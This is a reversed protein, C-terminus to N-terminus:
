RHRWKVGNGAKKKCVVCCMIPCNLGVCVCIDATHRRYYTHTHTSNDIGLTRSCNSNLTQESEPAHIFLQKTVVRVISVRFFLWAFLRACGLNTLMQLMLLLLLFYVPAFFVFYSALVVVFHYVFLGFLLAEHGMSNRHKLRYNIAIWSHSWVYNCVDIIILTFPSFYFFLWAILSLGSSGIGFLHLKMIYIKVHFYM